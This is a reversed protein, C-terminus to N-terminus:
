RAASRCGDEVAHPTDERPGAGETDAEVPDAVRGEGVNANGAAFTHGAGVGAVAVVGAADCGLVGSGGELLELVSM